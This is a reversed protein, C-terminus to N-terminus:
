IREYTYFNLKVDSPVLESEQGKPYVKFLNLDTEGGRLNMGLMMRIGTGIGMGM